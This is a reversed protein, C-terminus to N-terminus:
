KGLYLDVIEAYEDPYFGIEGTFRTLAILGGDIEDIGALMQANDAKLGGGYVVDVGPVCSKILRAVKQIYPVDAPTKGPGISWVPEYAVRVNALDAGRLGETVQRSLVEEWSEQEETREGMCFLVKLGAKQAAEVERALIRDSAHEIEEPDAGAEGMLTRLQMREECHGILTWTCGLQAVSNATRLTTFAGFNGGKATDAFHVGESGIGLPSAKAARCAGILHAEPLFAAFEAVDQYREAVPRISSAVAEGWADPAALRNVGGREPVIDFRKLNLYIHKM